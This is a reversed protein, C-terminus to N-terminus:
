PYSQVQLNGNSLCVAADQASMIQASRPSGAPLARRLVVISLHQRLDLCYTCFSPLIVELCILLSM